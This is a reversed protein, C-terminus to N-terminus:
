LMVLRVRGLVKCDTPSLVKGSLLPSKEPSVMRERLTTISADFASRKLPKGIM